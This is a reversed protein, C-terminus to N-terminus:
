FSDLVGGGMGSLKGSLGIVRQTRKYFTGPSSARINQLMNNIFLNLPRDWSTKSKWSDTINPLATPDRYLAQKSRDRTFLVSLDAITTDETEGSRHSIITGYHNQQAMHIAAATETLTGIQNVKILIANAAHEDIGRKLFQTNTVFLDDGVLQIKSGLM